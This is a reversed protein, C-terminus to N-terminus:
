SRCSVRLFGVVSIVSLVLGCPLADDGSDPGARVVDRVRAAGAAGAAHDEAVCVDGDGFVHQRLV